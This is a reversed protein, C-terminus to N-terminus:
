DPKKITYRNLDYLVNFEPHNDPRRISYRNLDIEGPFGINLNDTKRNAYKYMEIESPYGPNFDDTKRNRNSNLDVVSPYGPNIGTCIQGPGKSSNTMFQPRDQQANGVLFSLLLAIFLLKKMANIKKYNLFAM